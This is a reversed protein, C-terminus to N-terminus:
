GTHRKVEDAVTQAITRKAPWTAANLNDNQHYWFLAGHYANQGRPTTMQLQSAGYGLDAPIQLVRTGRLTDGQVPPPADPQLGFPLSFHFCSGRGPTSTVGIEGDMLAVLHRCIALGLGTGGYRRSTSADAQSFSHFLRRLAAEDM